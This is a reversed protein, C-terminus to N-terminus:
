FITHAEEQPQCASNRSPNPSTREEQPQCLKTNAYMRPKPLSRETRADNITASVSELNGHIELRCRARFDVRQTSNPTAHCTSVTRTMSNPQLLTRRSLMDQTKCNESRRQLVRSTSNESAHKSISTFKDTVAWM